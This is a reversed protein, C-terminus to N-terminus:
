LQFPQSFCQDIVSHILIFIVVAFFGGIIIYSRQNLYKIEEKM